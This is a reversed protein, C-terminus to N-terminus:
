KGPAVVKFNRDIVVQGDATVRAHWDGLPDSPRFSLPVDLVSQGLKATARGVLAARPVNEDVLPLSIEWTVDIDRALPAGFTLRFGHRQRAADVQKPLEQLEQVQGGFFVGFEAEKVVSKPTRGCATALFLAFLLRTV